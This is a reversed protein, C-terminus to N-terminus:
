KQKNSRRHKGRLVNNRKELERLAKKKEAREIEDVNDMKFKTIVGRPKPKGFIENDPNAEKFDDIMKRIDVYDRIRMIIKYIKLITRLIIKIKKM